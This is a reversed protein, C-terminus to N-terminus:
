EVIIEIPNSSVTLKPSTDNVRYTGDENRVFEEYMDTLSKNISFKYISPKYVYKGKENALFSIRFVESVVYDEGDLKGMTPSFAPFPSLYSWEINTLELGKEQYEEINEIGTIYYLDISNSEESSEKPIVNRVVDSFKSYQYLSLTITDQLNYRKKDTVLVTKISNSDVTITNVVNISVPKSKYEIGDIKVSAPPIEIKGLKTPKAYTFYTYYFYIEKETIGMSGMSGNQTIELGDISDIQISNEDPKRDFFLNFGIRKNIEAIPQVVIKIMEVEVEKSQCSYISICLIGLTILIIKRM